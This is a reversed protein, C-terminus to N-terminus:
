QNASIALRLAAFRECVTDWHQQCDRITDDVLMPLTAGDQEIQPLSISEAGSRIAAYLTTARSASRAGKLYGEPFYAIVSDLFEQAEGSFLKKHAGYRSGQLTRIMASLHSRVPEFELRKQRLSEAVQLLEQRGSATELDNTAPLEQRVQEFIKLYDQHVKLLDDFTPALIDDFAKQLRETQYGKLQILRDILKILLDLM